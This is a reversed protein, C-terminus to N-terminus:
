RGGFKFYCPYREQGAQGSSAPCSSVRDGDVNSHPRPADRREPPCMGHLPETPLVRLLGGVVCTDSPDFVDCPDGCHVSDVTQDVLPFVTDVLTNSSSAGPVEVTVAHQSPM